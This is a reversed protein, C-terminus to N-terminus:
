EQEKVNVQANVIAVLRQTMKAEEPSGHKTKSIGGLLGQVTPNTSLKQAQSLQQVSPAQGQMRILFNRMAASELARGALGAGASAIVSGVVGLGFANTLLLFFIPVSAQQGTATFVGAEGARSTLNLVRALGNIRSLEPKSFFAELNPKYKELTNLFREPSLTQGSTDKGIKSLLGMKAYAIGQPNLSNKLTALDSPKKSFLLVGVDEPTIDGKNFVTKLKNNGLSEVMARLNQDAMRWQKVAQVGDPGKAIFAAMDQKLPGYISSLVKQGEQRVAALSPDKFSQGIQARIQEVNALNQNDLATKWSELKNVVPGLEELNLKKLKTIEQDLKLTTLPVPVPAGGRSQIVSNKIQTFKDVEGQRKTFMDDVMGKYVNAGEPIQYEDLLTQIAKARETQQAARLPGTGAPARELTAQLYKGFHTKPPKVDSTLVRVGLNEAENIGPVTPLPKQALIDKGVKGAKTINAAAKGAGLVAGPALAGALGAALQGGTGAGQEAALQSAGGAGAGAVTQSIPNQALTKGVGEAVKLANSAAGQKGAIAARAAGQLAKGGAAFAGGGSAGAAVAQVIREAETKPEAVGLKTLASELIQGMTSFNTGAVANIGSVGLDALGVAGAGAIAGPIAGVGGIPATAVAGIGAGTAAGAAYPALGRTIAGALGGLTTSAEQPAPPEQQTQQPAAAPAAGSQRQARLQAVREKLQPADKPLNDPVNEITIGDETEITYPM